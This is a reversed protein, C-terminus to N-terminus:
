LGGSSSLLGFVFTVGGFVVAWVFKGAGESFWTNKASGQELVRLRGDHEDLRRGHRNLQDSTATHKEESAAITQAMNTVAGAMKEISEAQRDLQRNVQESHITFLREFDSM